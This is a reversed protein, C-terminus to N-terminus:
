SSPTLAPAPRHTALLGEIEPIPHHTYDKAIEAVILKQTDKSWERRLEALTKPPAIVILDKFLKERAATNVDAALSAAFRDEEMQHWDTEGLSGGRGGVTSSARGAADTGQDRSAPNSQERVSVRRLNILEADGANQLVLAKSGDGIVVWAGNRVTFTEM